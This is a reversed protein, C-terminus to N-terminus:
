CDHEVGRRRRAMGLVMLGSVLIVLTGPEAITPTPPDPIPKGTGIELRYIEVDMGNVTDIVIGFSALTGAALGSFNVAVFDGFISTDSGSIVLDFIDGATPTFSFALDLIGGLITFDADIAGYEVGRMLGGIGLAVTSGDGLVMANDIIGLNDNLDFTGMATGTGSSTGVLLADASFDGNNVTLAGTANGAAGFGVVGVNVFQFGSVNGDVSLTGDADGALTNSDTLGVHLSGAGNGTLNGSQINLVGTAPGSGGGALSTRVNGIRVTGFDSINGTVTATGMASGPGSTRGISLDFGMGLNNGQIGGALVTLEGTGSATATNGSSGSNGVTVFNANSIGTGIVATGIADASGASSGVSLSTDQLSGTISLDGTANGTSGFGSGGVNAIGFGSVNGDVSLTGNADGALIGPAQNDTLGVHLSGAGNGTLNGSQINLVGTAPGSGGGALSTRVNGIRVT